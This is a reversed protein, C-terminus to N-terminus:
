KRGYQEHITPIGKIKGLAILFKDIQYTTDIFYKLPPKAFFAHDQGEYFIVKCLTNYSKLKSKFREITEIPVIKDNTGTLILTPPGKSNINDIPSISKYNKGFRNHGYYGPGLDVVPNLLIAVDPKSSISLDENINDWRSIYSCSAVLHGGASGGVAIINNPKISFRQFNKRLFRIATKADELADFPTTGHKSKIRYEACFSIMGRSAFYMAQRKLMKHNGNNWGGGHFFIIANYAKSKLYNKPKYVHLNLKTEDVTKYVISTSTIIEPNQNSMLVGFFFLFYSFKFMM